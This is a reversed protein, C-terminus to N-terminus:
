GDYKLSIKDEEFNKHAKLQTLVDLDLVFSLDAEVIEPFVDFFYTDTVPTQVHVMGMNRYSKSGFRFGPKFNTIKRKREFSKDYFKAQCEGIEFLQAKSDVRTGEFQSLRM